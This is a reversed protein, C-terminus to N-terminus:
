STMSKNRKLTMLRFKLGHIYSQQNVYIESDIQEINLGIYKFIGKERKSIKFLRFIKDIVHHWSLMECYEFDDIHVVNLGVLNGDEHWIFLLWDYLSIKGGLAKLEQCVRDYM